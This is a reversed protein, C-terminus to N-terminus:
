PGSQTGIGNALVPRASPHDILEALPNARSQHVQDRRNGHDPFRVTLIRGSRTEVIGIERDDTVITDGILINM